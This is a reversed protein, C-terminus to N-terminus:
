DIKVEKFKLNTIKPHNHFGYVQKRAKAQSAIKYVGGLVLGIIVIKVLVMSLLVLATAIFSVALVTKLIKM